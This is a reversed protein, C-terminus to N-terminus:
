LKFLEPEEEVTRKRLLAKVFGLYKHNENFVELIALWRNRIAARDDDSLSRIHPKEMFYDIYDTIEKDSRASLKSKEYKYLELNGINTYVEVWDEAKMPQINVGIVNSVQDLVEKPPETHYYLNTVSLIGWPKLVREMESVAKEKEDMFSTSGGAIILDISDKDCPINYASGVQFTVLDQVFQADRALDAQSIKVAEEVPEIGLVSCKIARAVELSSFGTNSGIELVKSDVSAFSNKLIWHITDKGGPCRNTEKLLAIFEVYNMDAISKTM